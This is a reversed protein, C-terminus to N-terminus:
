INIYNIYTAWSYVLSLCLFLSVLVYEGLKYWFGIPFQSRDFYFFQIIVRSIWYVSIFCTVWVALESGNTLVKYGFVSILGFCLNIVLIYGAYTWFMQRILIDVGALAAEWKLVKPIALSGIVLCIQALGALRLLTEISYWM